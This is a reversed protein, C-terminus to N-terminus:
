PGGAANAEDLASLSRAADADRAAAGADAQALSRAARIPEHRGREAPRPRRGPPGSEGPAVARIPGVSPRISVEPALAPAISGPARALTVEPALDPPLDRPSAARWFGAASIVAVMALVGARAAVRARRARRRRQLITRVIM